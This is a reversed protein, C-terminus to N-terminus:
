PCGARFVVPNYLPHYPVSIRDLTLWVRMPNQPGPPLGINRAVGYGRVREPNAVAWAIASAPAWDVVQPCVGGGFQAVSSYTVFSWDVSGSPHPGPGGPYMDYCRYGVGRVYPDDNRGKWSLLPEAAPPRVELPLYVELYLPREPIVTVPPDFDFHWREILDGAPPIMLRSSGLVVGRSDSRINITVTVGEAPFPMGARRQLVLEVAVVDSRSPTFTQGQSAFMQPAQGFCFGGENPPVDNVQDPIGHALAVSRNCFAAVVAVLLIAIRPNVTSSALRWLLRRV